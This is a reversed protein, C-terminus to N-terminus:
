ASSSTSFTRVPYGDGNGDARRKGQLAEIFLKAFTGDDSVTQGADGSTMFQRVPETTIRTIHPPPAGRAVDFITGAFCSDFVTFVHKSDALRVFDGFRRLSLATRRFKLRDRELAGDTPILYGEGRQDTHGHGAYWIFLRADPASGKELFFDEFTQRLSRWDLNTKLTVEFGQGELAKAVNRADKVAQGLRPWGSTYDDNGIVLAYSKSYLEVEAEIPADAAESARLLVSLGRTEAAFLITPPGAPQEVLLQVELHLCSACHLLVQTTGNSLILEVHDVLRLDIKAGSLKDACLGQYPPSM